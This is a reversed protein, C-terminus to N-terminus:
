AVGITVQQDNELGKPAEWVTSADGANVAISPRYPVAPIVAVVFWVDCRTVNAHNGIHPNTSPRTDGVTGPSWLSCLWLYKLAFIGKKIEDVDNIPFPM